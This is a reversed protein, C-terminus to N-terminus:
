NTIKFFGKILNFLTEKLRQSAWNWKSCTEWLHLKLTFFKLHGQKLFHKWNKKFAVWFAEWHYCVHLFLIQFLIKNNSIMKKTPIIPWLRLKNICLRWDSICDRIVTHLFVEELLLSSSLLISVPVCFSNQYKKEKKKKELFQRYVNKDGKYLELQSYRILVSFGTM